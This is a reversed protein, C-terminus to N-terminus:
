SPAQLWRLLDGAAQDPATIRPGIEKTYAFVAQAGSGLPPAEVAKVHMRRDDGRLMVQFDEVMRQDGDGTVDLGSRWGRVVSGLFEWFTRKWFGLDFQDVTV